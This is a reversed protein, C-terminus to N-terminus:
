KSKKKLLGVNQVECFFPLHLILFLYQVSMDATRVLGWYLCCHGWETECKLICNWPSHVLIIVSINLQKTDRIDSHRVFHQLLSHYFNNLFFPILEVEGGKKEMHQLGWAGM